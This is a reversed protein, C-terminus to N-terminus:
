VGLSLFINVDHFLHFRCECVRKKCRGVKWMCINYVFSRCSLMYEYRSSMSIITRMKEVVSYFREAHSGCYIRM